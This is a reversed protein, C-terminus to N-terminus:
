KCKANPKKYWSEIDDPNKDEYQWLYDAMKKVQEKPVANKIIVYGNTIWFNWDDESLLRLPEGNSRDNLKMQSSKATSPNGPIEKHANMTEAQMILNTQHILLVKTIPACM